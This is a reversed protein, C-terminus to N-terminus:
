RSAAGLYSWVWGDLGFPYLLSGLLAAPVAFLEIMALTLPNGILVYPSVEHFDYAMFSATASTACFTAVLAVAAGAGCLRARRFRAAAGVIWLVPETAALLYFIAGAGAAPGALSFAAATGNQEMGAASPAARGSRAASVTRAGAAFAQGDAEKAMAKAPGEPLSAM